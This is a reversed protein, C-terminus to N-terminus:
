SKLLPYEQKDKAKTSISSYILCMAIQYNGRINDNMHITLHHYYQCDNGDM